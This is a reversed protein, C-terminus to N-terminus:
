AFMMLLTTGRALPAHKKQQLVWASVAFKSMMSITTQVPVLVAPILIPLRVALVSVPTQTSTSIFAYHVNNNSQIERASYALLHHIQLISSTAQVLAPTIPM